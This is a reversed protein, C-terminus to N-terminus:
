KVFPLILGINEEFLSLTPSRGMVTQLWCLGAMLRNSHPLRALIQGNGKAL